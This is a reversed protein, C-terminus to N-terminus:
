NLHAEANFSATEEDDDSEPDETDESLKSMPSVGLLTFKVQSREIAQNNERYIISVYYTAIVGIYHTRNLTWGDYLLAGKMGHMEEGIQAEVLKILKM